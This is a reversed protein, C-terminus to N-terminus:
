SVQDNNDELPPDWIYFITPLSTAVLVLLLGVGVVLVRRNRRLEEAAQHFM